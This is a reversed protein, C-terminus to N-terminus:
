RAPPVSSTHASGAPSLGTPQRCIIPLTHSHTASVNWGYGPNTHSGYLSYESGCKPWFFTSLPPHQVVRERRDPAGPAIEELPLPAVDEGAKPGHRASTHGARQRNSTWASSAAKRLISSASTRRPSLARGREM